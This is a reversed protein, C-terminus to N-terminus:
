HIVSDQLSVSPFLHESHFSSEEKTQDLFQSHYTTTSPVFAITSAPTKNILVPQQTSTYTSFLLDSRGHVQEMHIIQHSVTLIYMNLRWSTQKYINLRWSIQKYMNLRGYTHIYMNLRGYTHKYMDDELYINTCTKELIDTQVHTM